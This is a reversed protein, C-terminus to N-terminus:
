LHNIIQKRIQKIYLDDNYYNTFVNEISHNLNDIKVKRREYAIIYNAIEDINIPTKFCLTDEDLRINEVFADVADTFIPIVGASLYSNMKTPTAVENVINKERLLFGYKCESLREQLMSLPVYECTVNTLKHEAIKAMFDEKQNSFIKLEACPIQLSVKKFVQLMQDVCQWKSIGGAYAFLPQSYKLDNSSVVRKTINYCPMIIFSRKSYKYTKKYHKLQAKSVLFLLSATRVTFGEVIRKLFVKTSSLNRMVAEDPEVGQAWFIHKNFPYRVKAKFYFSTTITLIVDEKNIGSLKKSLVFSYGEKELAIKIIQLYYSTADNIQAEEYIFLVRKM